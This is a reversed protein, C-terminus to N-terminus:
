LISGLAGRAEAGPNSSWWGIILISPSWLPRNFISLSLAQSYAKRVKQNPWRFFKSHCKNKVKKARQRLKYYEDDSSDYSESLSHHSLSPDSDPDSPVNPVPNPPNNRPKHNGKPTVSEVSSDHPPSPPESESGNKPNPNPNPNPNTVRTCSFIGAIGIYKRNRLYLRFWANIWHKNFRGSHTSRLQHSKYRRSKLLFIKSELKYNLQHSELKCFKQSWSKLMSVIKASLM